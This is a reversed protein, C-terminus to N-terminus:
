RMIPRRPPFLKMEARIVHKTDHKPSKLWNMVTPSVRATIHKARSLSWARMTNLYMLAMKFWTGTKRAMITASRLSSISSEVPMVMMTLAESKPPTRPGVIAQAIQSSSANQGDSPSFGSLSTSAAMRGAIAVIGSTLGSAIEV